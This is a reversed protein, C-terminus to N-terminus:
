PEWPCAALMARIQDASPRRRRDWTVGERLLQAPAGGAAVYDGIDSTVIAGLDVISGAGIRLARAIRVNQGIWCHPGLIVSGPANIVALSEIDIIAHSDFNRGWVDAEIMADDGVMLACPTSQDGEIQWRSGASTVGQGLYAGCYADVTVALRSVAGMRGFGASVFIGHPGTFVVEGAFVEGLGLIAACDAHGGFRCVIDLKPMRADMVIVSGEGAPGNVTIGHDRLRGLNAEEVPIVLPQDISPMAYGRGGIAPGTAFAPHYKIRLLAQVALASM